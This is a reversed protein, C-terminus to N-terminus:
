SVRERTVKTLLVPQIDYNELTVIRGDSDPIIRTAVTIKGDGDGSKPVNLEIITFPYDVTRNRNAVERFGMHRDTVLVIREGGDKAPVHAAFHIDWGISGPTRIYGMRPMKQLEQLLREQGKDFMVSMLRDRDADSSWRNIVLEVSGASGRNMNVAFAAFRAPADEIQPSAALPAFLLLTGAVVLMAKSRFTQLM